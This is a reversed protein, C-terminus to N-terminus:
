VTVDGDIQDAPKDHHFGQIKGSKLSVIETTAGAEQLAKRPETLEIQEFGCTALIAVKKGALNKTPM